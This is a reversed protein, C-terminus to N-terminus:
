FIGTREVKYRIKGHLQLRDSDVGLMWRQDVTIRPSTTEIMMTAGYDSTIFRYATVRPQNQLHSPLQGTDVRALNKADELQVSRRPSYTIGILGSQRLVQETIIPALLIRAQAEQLFREMKVTLAYKEEAASFLKVKLLQRDTAQDSIEIDWKAINVGDVNTVRYESPLQVTFSDIGGRHINYNLTVEHSILAEAINIHQFQECIIVPELEAAAETKPKWSLSINKASGLFAQLRTAKAGKVEVQSTTAALMPQVDVKLNEEPILLELTTIAASPVRYQLVALGPQTELQRVFDLALVYRGKGKTVFIYEGKVVRLLPVIKTNETKLITAESVAVEGLGLPVQVWGDNLIDITLELRLTAIEEKVDGRFRATSILYEFPAESVVEPKGQATRWLRQFEKYPLFVGQQEKEFVSKLEKYPVYVKAPPSSQKEGENAAAKGASALVSSISCLVALINSYRSNM